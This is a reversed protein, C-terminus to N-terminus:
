IIRYKNYGTQIGQPHTMFFREKRTTGAKATAKNTVGKNAWPGPPRPPM